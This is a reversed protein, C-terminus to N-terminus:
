RRRRVGPAQQQIISRISTEIQKITRRPQREDPFSLNWPIKWTSQNLRHHHKLWISWGHPFLAEDDIFIDNPKRKMVRRKEIEKNCYYRQRRNRWDRKARSALVLLSHTCRFVFSNPLLPRAEFRGVMICRYSLLLKLDMSCHVRVM